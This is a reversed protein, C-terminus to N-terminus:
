TVTQRGTQSHSPSRSPSRPLSHLNSTASDDARYPKWLQRRILAPIILSVAALLGHAAIYCLGARDGYISQVLGATIPAIIGSVGGVAEQFSFASEVQSCPYLHVSLCAMNAIVVGYAMNNILAAVYYVYINDTFAFTFCTAALVVHSSIQLIYHNLSFKMLYVVILFTGCLFGAGLLSYALTAVSIDSRRTIYSFLLVMVSVHGGNWFYANLLYFPTVFQRLPKTFQKLATILSEPKNTPLQSKFVLPATITLLFVPSLYLVALKYNYAQLLNTLIYPYTVMAIGSGLGPAAYAVSKRKDFYHPVIGITSTFNMSM